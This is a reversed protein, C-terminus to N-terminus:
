GTISEEGMQLSFGVSIMHSHFQKKMQRFITLGLSGPVRFTLTGQVTDMSGGRGDTHPLSKTGCPSHLTWNISHSCHTCWVDLWHGEYVNNLM